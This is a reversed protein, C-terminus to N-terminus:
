LQLSYYVGSSDVLETDAVQCSELFVRGLPHQELDQRDFLYGHEIYIDGGACIIPIKIFAGFITPWLCFSHLCFCCFASCDISARVKWATVTCSIQMLWSTSRPTPMRM